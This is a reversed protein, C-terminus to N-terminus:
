KEQRSERLRAKLKSKKQTPTGTASSTSKREQDISTNHQQRMQAVREQAAKKEAMKQEKVMRRVTWNVNKINGTIFNYKVKM